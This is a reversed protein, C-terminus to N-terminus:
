NHQQSKPHIEYNVACLRVQESQAFIDTTETEIGDKSIIVRNNLGSVEM